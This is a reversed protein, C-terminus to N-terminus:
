TNEFLDLTVTAISEAEQATVDVVGGIVTFVCLKPDLFLAGLTLVSCPDHSIRLRTRATMLMNFLILPAIMHSARLTPVLEAPDTHTIPRSMTTGRTAEILAVKVFFLLFVVCAECLLLYLPM